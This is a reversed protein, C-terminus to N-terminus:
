AAKRATQGELADAVRTTNAAIAQVTEDLGSAMKATRHLQWIPQTNAEIESVVVAAVSALGRIRRAQALIYLLLAAVVVIVAGSIVFGTIWAPSM